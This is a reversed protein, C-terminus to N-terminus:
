FMLFKWTVNQTEQIEHINRVILGIQCINQVKFSCNKWGTVIGSAANQLKSAKWPEAKFIEIVYRPPTSMTYSGSANYPANISAIKSPISAVVSGWTCGVAVLMYVSVNVKPQPPTVWPVIAFMNALHVINWLCRHLSSLLKTGRFFHIRGLFHRSIIKESNPTFFAVKEPAKAATFGGPQTNCM